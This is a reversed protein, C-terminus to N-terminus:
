PQGVVRVPAPSTTTGGDGLQGSDNAGWCYATGGATIGCSYTRGAAVSVFTLDGSVAVPVSSNTKSGDGLQGFDNRGWCLARGGAVLGCTHNGGAAIATFALGGAVGTPSRESPSTMGRGLEGSSNVGWCLATGAATLGCNHFSGASLQSFTAGSVAVPVGSGLFVTDGLQYYINSGWCYATGAQTLGCFHDSGGALSAFTLGGVVRLPTLSMGGLTGQGLQGSSSGGWCYVEDARTVGCSAATGVVQIQAFTLGGSVLAPTPRNDETSGGGLAGGWGRGWCYGSGTATVACTHYAAADIMAFSLGGAVGGPTSRSATTGDGLQSDSNRGWCFAAGSATLGCSYGTGLSLSTFTVETVNVSATGVTASGTVAASVTVSGPAVAYVAGASVTAVAQSSSSWTLTRGSLARGMSDRLTASLQVTGSPVLTYSAPAITVSAVPVTSVTITASHTKGESTASITATGPAYGNVLGTASVTAVSPASSSWTIVRGTLPTNAADLPTATLQLTGGEPITAAAPTVTVSAVPGVVSVAATGSKGEATATITATGPGVATVLGSGSVTAVATADSAWTVARDNLAAGGPDRLTAILQATQGQYVSASPPTVVVSAVSARGPGTAEGGCGLIMVTVLLPAGCRNWMASPM